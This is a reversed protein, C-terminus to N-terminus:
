SLYGLEQDYTLTTGSAKLLKCYLGSFRVCSYMPARYVCYGLFFRM